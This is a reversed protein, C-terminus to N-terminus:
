AMSAEATLGALLKPASEATILASVTGTRRDKVKEAARKMLGGFQADASRPVIIAVVLAAAVFLRMRSAGPSASHSLRHRERVRWLFPREPHTPRRLRTVREHSRM